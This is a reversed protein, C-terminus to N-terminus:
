DHACHWACRGIVGAGDQGPHGPTSTVETEDTVGSYQTTTRSVNHSHNFAETPHSTGDSFHTLAAVPNIGLRGRALRLIPAEDSAKRAPGRALRLIPVEDLAKRPPAEPSPAEPSAFLQYRTRPRSAHAEPSDSFRGLGM